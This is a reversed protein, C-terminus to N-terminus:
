GFVVPLLSPHYGSLCPEDGGMGRHEVLRSESPVHRPVHDAHYVHTCSSSPARRASATSFVFIFLDDTGPMGVLVPVHQSPMFYGTFAIPVERDSIRHPGTNM